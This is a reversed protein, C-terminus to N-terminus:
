TLNAHTNTNACNFGEEPSCTYLKAAHLESILKSRCTNAYKEKAVCVLFSVDPHESFTGFTSSYVKALVRISLDLLLVWLKDDVKMNLM